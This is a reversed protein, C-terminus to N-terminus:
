HAPQLLINKVHEIALDVNTPFPLWVISPNRKLWTKQRKAFQRSKTTIEEIMTDRAIQNQLYKAIYRYELGIADLREYSVGNEHLSAVEEIMGTNLRSLVRSHILPTLEDLTIDIGITLFRYPSTPTASAPVHGLASAIEIARVLRRPNDKDIRAATTPDLNTLANVLEDLTQKELIARLVPNPAVPAASANGALLDLYFFTGGALIPLKGRSCIDTLAQTGDRVFDAGTYVTNPDCIDILHHPIGAMEEATVKATGIDLGRYVQRSDVSIVEGDFHKALAISLATKGSGTPGVVAIVLNTQTNM